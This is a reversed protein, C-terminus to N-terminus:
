RRSSSASQRSGVSVWSCCAAESMQHSCGVLHRSALEQQAKRVFDEVRDNCRHRKLEHRREQMVKRFEAEDKFGRGPGALGAAVGLAGLTLVGLMVRPIFLLFGPETKVPRALKSM